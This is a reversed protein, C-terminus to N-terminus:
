FPFFYSFIGTNELAAMNTKISTNNRWGGQNTRQNIQIIKNM